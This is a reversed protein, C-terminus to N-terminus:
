RAQEAKLAENMTTAMRQAAALPTQKGSWAEGLIKPEEAAWADTNKSVPYPVAVAIQDVLSQLHYQPVSSVWGQAQSSYAPIVTGSEARTQAAEKRGMFEVLKWAADPHKTKASIAEALGTSITARKKGAPLAAVNFKKATDTKAFTGALWNGGYMMAVKGSQFLQLPETDTMQQLTPSHGAAIFDTWYAIGEVSAPDDYGSHQGDPSIVYGGAQAITNYFNSQSNLAAAIGYTGTSKNTLKAAAARADAWTWDDTPYKVGAADFLTKNYWLGITTNDRPMGYQEGKLVFSDTVAKAYVGLDVSDRDIYKSLPLLMGNSAYLQFNPANMWMVDPAEGGSAAAKLKQWYQDWPTLQIQVTIGPNEKEFDRIIQEESPKMSADWLAFTLQVKTDAASGSCGSVAAIVALGALMSLAKRLM